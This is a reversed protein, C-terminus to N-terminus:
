RIITFYGKMIGQSPDNIDLVYYYTGAEYDEGNWDNYYDNDEYILKGWRNFIQLSSGEYVEILDFTLFDNIGDGNPTFVNTPKVVVECAAAADIQSYQCSAGDPLENNVARVLLETQSGLALHHIGYLDNAKIWDSKTGNNYIEQVEYDDAGDVTEWYFLQKIQGNEFTVKSCIPDPAALTDAIVIRVADSGQCISNKTVELMYDGQDTIFLSDNTKGSIPISDLYWQYKISDPNQYSEKNYLWYENGFCFSSDKGIDVLVPNADIIFTDEETCVNNLTVESYFKGGRDFTGAVLNKQTSVIEFENTKDNLWYWTHHSGQKVTDLIILLADIEEPCIYFDPVEVPRNQTIDVFFNDSDDCGKVNVEVSWNGHMDVEQSQLSDGGISVGNHSWAYFTAGEFNVTAIPAPDAPRCGIISDFDLEFTFNDIVTVDIFTFEPIDIGCKTQLTNFDDGTKFFLKYDGPGIPEFLEVTFTTFENLLCNTAFATDIGYVAIPNEPDGQVLRFDSGYPELTNCQLAINMRVNFQTAACNVEIAGNFLPPNNPDIPANPDNPDNGFIPLNTVCNNGFIFRTDRLISGVFVKKSAIMAVSDGAVFISDVFCSDRWEEVIYAFAGTFAQAPTFELVGNKEDFSVPRNVVPLPDTVSYGAMFGTPTGAASLPNVIKYSLSDGDADTAGVFYKYKKGVCFTVVPRDDNFVAANNYSTNNICTDNPPIGNAGTVNTDCPFTNNIITEAYIAGGQVNENNGPRCCVSWSFTWDRCPGPLEINFTGDPNYYRYLYEETCALEDGTICNNVLVRGGGLTDTATIVSYPDLTYSTSGYCTSTVTLSLSTPAAANSGSCDRYFKAEAIYKDPFTCPVWTSDNHWVSVQAAATHTAFTDTSFAFLCTILTLTSLLKKM